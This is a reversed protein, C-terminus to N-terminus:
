CSRRSFSIAVWELIRAKFIGHASSGAKLELASWLTVFLRVRRLSNVNMDQSMYITSCLVSLHMSRKLNYNERSIHGSHAQQIM